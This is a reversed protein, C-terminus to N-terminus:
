SEVVDATLDELSRLSLAAAAVAEDGPPFAQNPIAIV